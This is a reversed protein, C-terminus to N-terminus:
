NYKNQTKTIDNDCYFIFAEVAKDLAQKLLPLQESTFNQLVYDESKMFAPQPGIGIKLRDFVQTGAHSIISKIGNHGGDSGKPRFRIIGTDLSIDDYAVFLTNIDIKYFNKLAALAEGSLNMFTQPKVLWIAENNYVGKAIEAKFKSEASFSCGLKEALLDAFMFGANHRTASYKIGPNGLCFVLKM